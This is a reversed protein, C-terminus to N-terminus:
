SELGKLREQLTAERVIEAEVVRHTATSFRSVSRGDQLRITKFGPKPNEDVIMALREARGDVKVVVIRDKPRHGNTGNTPKHVIEGTTADEGLEGALPDVDLFDELATEFVSSLTYKGKDAFAVARAYLDAPVMVAKKAGSYKRVLTV